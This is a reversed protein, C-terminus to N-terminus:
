KVMRLAVAVLGKPGKSYRVEVEQGDRLGICAFKRLIEMHVFIDPTNPGRTLFGFGRVRNFWKVHAAEWDSDASLVEPINELLQSAHIASSDDIGWIRCAQLGKGPVDTVECHVRAGEYIALYGAVRLCSAHLLVDPFGNDPVIFGYGKAPDFWKVVGELEFSNIDVRPGTDSFMEQAHATPKM